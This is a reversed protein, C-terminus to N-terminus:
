APMNLFQRARNQWALLPAMVTSSLPAGSADIVQRKRVVHTGAVWVDSVQERGCAYILHSLPDFLPQTEVESLDIAVLDAEKGPEISGIRKSLGLARAGGLTA